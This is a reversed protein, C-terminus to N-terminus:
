CKPGKLLDTLKINVSGEMAKELATLGWRKIRYARLETALQKARMGNEGHDGSAMGARDQEAYIFALRVLEWFPRTVTKGVNWKKACAFCQWRRMSVQSVRASACRPCNTPSTM